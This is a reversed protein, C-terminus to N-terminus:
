TSETVSHEKHFDIQENEIIPKWWEVNQRYWKVTKDIGVRFKTRPKWGLEQIKGTEL